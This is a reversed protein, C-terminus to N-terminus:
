GVPRHSPSPPLPSGEQRAPASGQLGLSEAFSRVSFAAAVRLVLRIASMKDIIAIPASDIIKIVRVEYASAVAVIRLLELEGKGRFGRIVSDQLAEVQTTIRDALSQEQTIYYAFEFLTKRTGFQSWADDFDLHSTREAGERLRAYIAEAEDKEFSLPLEAFAFDAASIRRADM